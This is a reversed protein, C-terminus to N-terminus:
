ELSCVRNRGQGKAEYLAEDARRLLDHTDDGDGRFIAVGASITVRGVTDDIQAAVTELLQQSIALAGKLDTDPLMAVFEEGGLRATVDSDRLRQQLTQALRKLVEDGADHGFSDNVRKFHDVDVMVLALPRGSRRALAAALKLQSDFGRRNLLGTLPDSRAQLDLERNAAELEQTRLRVKQEMEENAAILRRTMSGFSESLTRVEASSNSQPLRAGAKGAEVDRAAQALAYLDVSLRRAALWGLATAVLAAVLGITLAMRVAKDAQAFAIAVPERAVIHWGLDSEPTHPVMRVVSTLYREGDEWTVVTADLPTAEADAASAAPAPLRQRAALAATDGGPAFILQGNRDFIHIQLQVEEAFAPLLNAVLERVWDWSGHIAVVGITKGGSKVPAAFDVFRLPEGSPSPALLSALLKASHVDGVHVGELGAAFWPREKVSQGVLLNSTAARVLGDTDAVGIWLNHPRLSQARSLLLLVERSDMGADWISEASSIVQVQRSGDLLGDALMRAANTAVVRLSASAARQSHARLIEGFALSLLVAVLAVLGAFVLAIQTRLSSRPLNLKM